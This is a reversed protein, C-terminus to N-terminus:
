KGGRAAAAAAQTKGTHCDFCDVKVAAFSHCGVCFDNSAQNVSGTAPSAHCEICGRLSHKAGRIGGHVTEDRQHELFRMHNRRMTATDEVCREGKAAKPVVPALSTAVAVMTALAFLGGFVFRRVWASAASGAGGTRQRRGGPPSAGCASRPPAM